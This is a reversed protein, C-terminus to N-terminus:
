KVVVKQNNVINVGRRLKSIRRGTLDYMKVPVTKVNEDDIMELGTVDEGDVLIALKVSGQNDDHFYARFRGTMAGAEDVYYLANASIYSNGANPAIEEETYTGIFSIGGQTDKTEGEVIDTNEFIFSLAETEGIASSNASQQDGPIILYPVNAEMSGDLTEFVITGDSVGSLRAVRTGAGFTAVPDEVGIPLCITNWMGRRFSRYLVVYADDTAEAVYDINESLLVRAPKRYLVRVTTSGEVTITLDQGETLETGYMYTVVTPEGVGSLPQTTVEYGTVVYDNSTPRAGVTVEADYEAISNWFSPIVYNQDASVSVVFERPAFVARLHQSSNLELTITPDTSYRSGAAVLGDLAAARRRVAAAGRDGLQGSGGDVVEWHSFEYGDEPKATLTVTTGHHIDGSMDEIVADDDDDNTMTIDGTNLPWVDVNYHIMGDMYQMWKVIRGEQGHYGEQDEVGQALVQLSYLGNQDMKTSTMRLHSDDTWEYNFIGDLNQTKGEWRLVVDEDGFSSRLVPKNFTVDFIQIPVETINQQDPIAPTGAIDTVQLWEDPTDEFTVLYTYEGPGDSLDAVHLRHDELPDFGDQMTYDTTWFNRASLEAGRTENRVSLVKSHGGTPNIVNAYFWERQPVRVRVRYTHNDVKEITTVNTLTTLKEDTGNSFYIHDPEGHGEEVDNTIWARYITGGINADVSHIMEHITVEDLLSLDPNGYSTVHTASVEYDVFHGLLDSQLDWSAYSCQGAPIDGFQTAITEDLAMAKEGGNLSSNIIRFGVLLEKENEVIEPQKTFMRVNTADGNGKNKILCTFEAPVMPEVVGPTLPNDGYIDRQMFYTLDLVPSPRVELSVDYLPRKIDEGNFHMFLDGGFSWMEPTTEAAYKTPIFLITITGKEGPKLSWDGDTGGLGDTSEIEIQFEHSTAVEGESNKARVALDIGTLDFGSDNSITLTGRFAQRTMVLKQEIKLTVHACMNKSANQYYEQKNDYGSKYLEQWNVFGMEFLAKNLSDTRQEFEGELVRHPYNDNAPEMGDLIRYYNQFREVCKQMDLDEYQYYHNPMHYIMEWMSSGHYALAQAKADADDAYMSEIQEPTLSTFAIQAPDIDYLTGDTHMQAMAEKMYDYVEFYADIAEKGPISDPVSMYDSLESWLNKAYLIYLDYKRNAATLM